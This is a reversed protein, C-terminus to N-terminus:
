HYYDLVTTSQVAAAQQQRTNHMEELLCRALVFSIKLNLICGFDTHTKNTPNNQPCQGHRHLVEYRSINILITNTHHLDMYMRLTECSATSYHLLLVIIRVYYLVFVSVCEYM